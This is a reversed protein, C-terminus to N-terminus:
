LSLFYSIEDSLQDFSAQFNLRERETLTENALRHAIQNRTAQYVRVKERAEDKTM